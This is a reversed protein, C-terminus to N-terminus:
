RRWERPVAERSAAHDLDDLKRRADELAQEARALHAKLRDLEPNPVVMGGQGYAVGIGASAPDALKARDAQAEAELGAIEQHMQRFRGRWLAENDAESPQAPEPAPAPAPPPVEPGSAKPPEAAKKTTREPQVVMLEDGQTVKASKKLTPPITSPDNSYHVEGKADVWRYIDDALAPAASLVAALLLPAKRLRPM